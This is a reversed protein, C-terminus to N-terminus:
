PRRALTLSRSARVHLDGRQHLSEPGDGEILTTLTELDEPSLRDALGFRVRGLWIEAYRVTAAPHPPLLDIDVTRESLLTFGAAEFRPAWDSGLEPLAEAHEDALADLCRQELGPRGIGLDDPLFRMPPDTMEVVALLGGPRTGAYIDRLVRDPDAFHHMALSAWTIDVSDVPPWDADLDAEITRIRDTLGLTESKAQIRALMQDSQDVAIVEADDFQRALAVTGTGSGAGLDLIRRPKNQPAERGVSALVDAWFTHLVEADLDLMEALAEDAAEVQDDSRGHGDDHGHGHRGDHDHATDM